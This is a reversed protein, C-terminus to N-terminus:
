KISELNSITESESDAEKLSPPCRNEEEFEGKLLKELKKTM